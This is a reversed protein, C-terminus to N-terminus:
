KPQKQSSKDFSKQTQKFTNNFDFFEVDSQSPPASHACASACADSSVASSESLKTPAPQTGVLESAPTRSPSEEEVKTEEPGAQQGEREEQKIEDEKDDGIVFTEVGHDLTAARDQRPVFDDADHYQEEPPEEKAYPVEITPQRPLGVPSTWPAGELKESVMEEPVNPVAHAVDDVLDSDTSEELVKVPTEESDAEDM